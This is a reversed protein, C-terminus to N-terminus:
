KMNLLFVGIIMALIGLIRKPTIMEVPLHLWGYSGALFSFLLQGCLGLAIVKSIGLKPITYFYFSIGLMSFFAGIFWLYWPVDALLTITPTKKALLSALLIGFFTSGVSTVIVAFIPQKLYNGLQSNFGAQVALFIGGLFAIIYLSIEKM